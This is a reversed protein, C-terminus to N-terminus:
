TLQAGQIVRAYRELYSQAMHLHTFHRLFRDRCASPDAIWDGSRLSEVWAEGDKPDILRGVDATVLEPLSGLKSALVSTGSALAEIVVLGFPEPWTVPFLFGKAQSLIEAKREGSVPGLWNLKPDLWSKMRIGFPRNGGAIDLSVGARKIWEVAGALNKVKWSTKSLFLYRNSRRNVSTRPNFIFERPNLGNWVFSRSQHRAAHDQTLFITNKSFTEGPKGNGHITVVHACPLKEVVGAEPPAQFHVVDVGKPLKRLLDHASRANVPFEILRAGGPLSSGELAGVWVEHGLEILAETLWLVVREVGGYNKPPLLEPHFLVIKM